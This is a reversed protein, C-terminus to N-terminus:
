YAPSSAPQQSALPLMRSNELCYPEICTRKLTRQRRRRSRNISVSMQRAAGSTVLQVQLMKQWAKRCTKRRGTHDFSWSPHSAHSHAKSM